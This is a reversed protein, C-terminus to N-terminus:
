LSPRNTFCVISPLTSPVTLTGLWLMSIGKVLSIVESILSTLYRMATTLLGCINSILCFVYVHLLNDLQDKSHSPSYGAAFLPDLCM